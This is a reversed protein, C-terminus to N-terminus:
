ESVYSSRSRAQRRDVLEFAEEFRDITMQHSIMTKVDPNARPSSNCCRKGLEKPIPFAERCGLGKQVLANLDVEPTFPGLRNEYHRTAHWQPSRRRWPRRGEAADVVLPVGRGGTLQNVLVLPDQNPVIVTHHAGLKRIVDLRGVDVETGVALIPYAGRIRAIQVAMMGIPGPGLVLVPEGPRIESKVTLANYAVCGPETLAAFEDPVNDPVHHLCRTPVRVYTTFAGDRGAGFGMREPCQNYEGARCYECQGCISAATESVVRDGKSFGQVGEGVAEVVGCFEHGQIVPVTPINIWNHWMEIDSGCVGAARVRLLVEGKAPAPDPVDRLEVEKDGRGYKVVAKM